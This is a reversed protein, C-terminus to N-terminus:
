EIISWNCTGSYPASFYITFKGATNNRILYYSPIPMDTITGELTIHIVDNSELNVANGLGNLPTIEISEVAETPTATGRAKTVYYGNGKLVADISAQKILGTNDAIVVRDYGSPLTSTATGALSTFVTNGDAQFSSQATLAGTVELTGGVTSNGTARFTGGVELTNTTTLSSGIGINGNSNIRMREINGTLLKIPQATTNTTAIVLPELNTTGIFQQGAATGAATISNGELSWGASSVASALSQWELTATSGTISGVKLIHGQSPALAPVTLTYTSTGEASRLGVFSNTGSSPNVLRIEKQVTPRVQANSQVGWCAALLFPLFIKFQKKM